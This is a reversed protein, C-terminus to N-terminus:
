RRGLNNLIATERSVECMNLRNEDCFDRAGIETEMYWGNFPIGTFQLGGLDLMICSVAPLAYWRLGLDAFWDYSYLFAFTLFQM